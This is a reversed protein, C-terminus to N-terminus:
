IKIVGRVRNMSYEVASYFRSVVGLLYALSLTWGGRVKM